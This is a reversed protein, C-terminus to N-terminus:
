ISKENVITGSRRLSKLDFRPYNVCMYRIHLVKLQGEILKQFNKIHYCEILCLTHINEIGSLDLDQIYDLKLTHLNKLAHLGNLKTLPGVTLTHLNNLYSLDKINKTLNCTSSLKLTHLNRFLSPDDIRNCGQFSMRFIQGHKFIEKIHNNRIWAGFKDVHIDYLANKDKMEDLLEKLTGLFGLYIKVPRKYGYKKYLNYLQKSCQGLRYKEHISLYQFVIKYLDSNLEPKSLRIRKKSNM